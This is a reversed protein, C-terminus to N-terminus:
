GAFVMPREDYGPMEGTAQPQYPTPALADPNGGDDDADSAEEAEDAVTTVVEDVETASTDGDDDSSASSDVSESGSGRQDYLRQLRHRISSVASVVRDAEVPTLVEHVFTSEAVGDVTDVTLGEILEVGEDDILDILGAIVRREWTRKDSM